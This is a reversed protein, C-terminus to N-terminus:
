GRGLIKNTLQAALRNLEQADPEIISRGEQSSTFEIRDSSVKTKGGIVLIYKGNEFQANKVCFSRWM